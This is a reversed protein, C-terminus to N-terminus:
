GINPPDGARVMCVLQFAEDHTFGADEFKTMIERLYRAYPGAARVAQAMVRELNEDVPEDSDYMSLAAQWVLM